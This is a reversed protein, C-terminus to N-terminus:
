ADAVDSGRFSDFSARFSAGFCFVFTSRRRQHRSSRTLGTSDGEHLEICERQLANYIYDFTPRDHPDQSWGHQFLSKITISWSDDIAPREFAGAWVENEFSRSFHSAFPKKCTYMQWFLIAFSYVDCSSNYPKKM